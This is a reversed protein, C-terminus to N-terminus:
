SAPQLRERQQHRTEQHEALLGSYEPYLTVSIQDQLYKLLSRLLVNYNFLLLM